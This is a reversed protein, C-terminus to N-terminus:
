HVVQVIDFEKTSGNEKIVVGYKEASAPVTKQIPISAAYIGDGLESFEFVASKQLNTYIVYGTVDLDEKFGGSSYFLVFETGGNNVITVM